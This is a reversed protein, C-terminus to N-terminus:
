DAYGFQKNLPNVPIGYRRIEYHCHTGTTYGTSGMFSIVDGRKVKQGLVVQILNNHGYRTTYGFGHQIVVLKGYGGEEGAFTVVGDATTHVPTGKVNAIDVGWHFDGAEGSVPSVREGFTSTIWGKVPLGFPIATFSEVLEGFNKEREEADRNFKEVQRLLDEPSIDARKELIRQLNVQDDETPGGQGLYGIVLKKTKIDAKKIIKKLSSELYAVRQLADNGKSLEAAFLSKEERLRQTDKIVSEYQIHRSIIFLSWGLSGLFCFIVLYTLAVPIRLAVTRRQSHPIFM